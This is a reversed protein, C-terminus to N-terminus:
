MENIEIELEDINQEYVSECILKVENFMNIDGFEYAKQYTEINDLEFKRFKLNDYLEVMKDQVDEFDDNAKDNSLHLGIENNSKKSLMESSILQIVVEKLNSIDILFLKGKASFETKAKRIIENFREQFPKEFVKKEKTLEPHHILQMMEMVRDKSIPKSQDNKLQSDDIIDIKAYGQIENYSWKATLGLLNQFFPLESAVKGTLELIPKGNTQEIQELYNNLPISIWAEHFIPNETFKTEIMINGKVIVKEKDILLLDDSLEEIRDFEENMRIELLFKPIGGTSSYYVSHKKKCIQCKYKEM